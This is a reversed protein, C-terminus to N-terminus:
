QRMQHETRVCVPSIGLRVNDIRLVDLGSQGAFRVVQAASVADGQYMSISMKDEAGYFAGFRRDWLKSTGNQELEEDGIEM